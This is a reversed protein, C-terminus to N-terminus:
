GFLEVESTRPSAPTVPAESVDAAAVFRQRVRGSAPWFRVQRGRTGGTSEALCPIGETSLFGRVFAINRAGVDSLGAIVSAGGFVKASFRRRDGGRKILSNILREMDNTAFPDARGAEPMGAPLLIHNMGGMRRVPDHLCVAVCSGLITSIVFDQRDSVAFEGQVIVRQGPAPALAAQVSM